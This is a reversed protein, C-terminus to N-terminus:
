YSGIMHVSVEMQRIFLSQKIVHFYIVLRCPLIWEVEQRQGEVNSVTHVTGVKLLELINEVVWFLACVQKTVWLKSLCQPNYLWSFISIAPTSDVNAFVQAVNFSNYIAILLVVAFFATIDDLLVDLLGKQVFITLKIDPREHQRSCYITIQLSVPVCISIKACGASLVVGLIYRAFEHV